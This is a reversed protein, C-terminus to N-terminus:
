YCFDGSSRDPLVDVIFRYKTWQDKIRQWANPRTRSYLKQWQCIPIGIGNITLFSSNECDRVLQELQDMTKYSLAPPDPLTEATYTLSKGNIIIVELKSLTATPTMVNPVVSQSPVLRGPTNAIIATTLTQFESTFNNISANNSSFSLIHHHTYNVEQKSPSPPQNVNTGVDDLASNAPL